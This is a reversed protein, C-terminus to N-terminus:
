AALRKQILSKNKMVLNIIRDHYETTQNCVGRCQLVKLKSLSFEVTELRKDGISASLILTDTKLHYENTFVCHRMTDGEQRVEEVSKLVCVRILGDSFQIDFFRSKMESYVAEDEITKRQAKERDQQEQWVRKKRVYRDHEEKLDAPCVYKANHLDKGFFRLLNMYDCWISADKIQYGNRICIKVSSWYDGINKFDRVAFYYLLETQGTKLLTEAKNECLLVHFLDFPSLRYFIGDYGSRKLEPILRERPYIFPTNINHYMQKPRIELHSHFCWKEAYHSFPLIRSIVANKGDPAIWRQVVESHFYRAKQGAKAQCGVYFYRIVQFGKCTTIICFYQYDKFVKKRTDKVKLETRCCPCVCGCLTDVLSQESRWATGCELCNIKGSKTRFGLHEMCNQYAWHVQTETLPPLTKSAEFVQKQFKNKPKM